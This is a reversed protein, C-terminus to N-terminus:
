CHKKSDLDTATAVAHQHITPTTNSTPTLAHPLLGLCCGHFILIDSSIMEIYAARTTCRQQQQHERETVHTITKDFLHDVLTIVQSGYHSEIRVNSHTESYACM